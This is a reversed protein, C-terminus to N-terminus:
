RIVKRCAAVTAKWLKLDLFGARLREVYANYSNAFSNLMDIDTCPPPDQERAIAPVVWAFTILARRTM